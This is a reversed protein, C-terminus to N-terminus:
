RRHTMIDHSGCAGKKGRGVVQHGFVAGWVVFSEEQLFLLLPLLCFSTLLLCFSTLLLRLVSLFLRLVFPSPVPFAGSKLIELSEQMTGM